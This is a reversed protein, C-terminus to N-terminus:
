AIGDGGLRRVISFAMEIGEARAVRERERVAGQQGPLFAARLMLALAEDDAILLWTWARGLRIKEGRLRVVWSELRPMADPDYAAKQEPHVAFAVVGNEHLMRVAWPALWLVTIPELDRTYVTAHM